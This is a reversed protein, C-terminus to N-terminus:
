DTDKEVIRAGELGGYAAVQRGYVTMATGAMLLVAAMAGLGATLLRLGDNAIEGDVFWDGPYTALFIGTALLGVLAGLVSLVLGTLGQKNAVNDMRLSVNTELDIHHQLAHRFQGVDFVLEDSTADDSDDEYIVLYDGFESM